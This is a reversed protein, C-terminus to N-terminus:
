RRAASRRRTPATKSGSLSLVLGSAIMTELTKPHAGAIVVVITMMKQVTEIPM